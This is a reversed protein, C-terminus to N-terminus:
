FLKEAQAQANDLAKKPDVSGVLVANVAEGLIDQIQPYQPIRPRYEGDGHEFTEDIVNIFPYKKVVDPDHTQSKRIFSSLGGLHDGEGGGPQDGM